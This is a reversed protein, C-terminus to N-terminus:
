RLYKGIRDAMEASFIFDPNFSGILAGNLPSFLFFFLWYPGFQDLVLVPFGFWVIEAQESSVFWFIWAWFM